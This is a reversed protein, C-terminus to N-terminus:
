DRCQSVQLAALQSETWDGGLLIKRAEGEPSQPEEVDTESQEKQSEALDSNAGGSEIAQLAQSKSKSRM